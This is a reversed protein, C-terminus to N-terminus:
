LKSKLYEVEEKLEKVSQVLLGVVADYNVTLHKSGDRVSEVEKVAQPLIKQVEQAIVGASLENNKKWYFEVGRIEAIKELPNQIPVIDYKLNQDSTITTSFAIVDGEVHLSGTQDLRMDNNGDVYFNLDKFADISGSVYVRDWRSGSSGLNYSANILPVIHASGTIDGSASSSILGSPTNTFNGYDLYYSAVQNNLKSANNATSLSGYVIHGGKAVVVTGSTAESFTIVASNVTNLNISAPIIYNDNDDYVSIIVNKTGFNHTVTTSTVSTFTDAVTPVEIQSGSVIHGGKAVVATGSTNESFTIDVTNNSAIYVSKPIIQYNDTDYVSVLINRSNFGHNVTTSTTSSFSATVTSEQSVTTTIGTIGSGDGVFSTATVSGTIELNNTTNYSSGTPAFIGAGGIGTLGSGNGFFSGSFASASVANTVVLSALSADSGSTVLKKWNPM